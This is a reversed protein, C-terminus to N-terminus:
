RGILARIGWSILLGACMGLADAVLDLASDKWGWSSGKALKDGVEKGASAGICLGIALPYSLIGSLALALNVSFHYIKDKPIKM